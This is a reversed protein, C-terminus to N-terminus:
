KEAATSPGKQLADKYYSDDHKKKWGDTPAPLGPRHKAWMENVFADWAQGQRSWDHDHDRGTAQKITKVFGADDEYMWRDAYDFFADHDWAREAGLLRLALAQAIWGVSTCCRRYSESTNQGDKWTSPQTH